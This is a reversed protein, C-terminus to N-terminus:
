LVISRLFRLVMEFDSPLPAHFLMDKQTAPHKFGLYAAHLMQREINKVIFSYIVKNNKVSGPIQAYLADGLIGHKISAMQVRIQHTRGTFLKCEVLAFLQSALKEIVSYNLTAKKGM